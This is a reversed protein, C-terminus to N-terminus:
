ASPGVVVDVTPGSLIEEALESVEAPTVAGVRLLGENLAVIKEDFLARTGLRMLRMGPDELDLVMQGKVQNKASAVEDGSIGTTRVEHLVADIVERTQDLKEPACGAHVGFIGADSYSSRFANVTYALGRRERVEQFLRSSMGGGLITHLVAMAYRRDDNRAISPYGRLLNIQEFARSVKSTAPRPGRPSKQPKPPRVPQQAEGFARRVLSMVRRHSASGVATIVYNDPTYYRRYHRRIAADSMGTVSDVTGAVPTGLPHGAFLLAELETRALDLPDDESM